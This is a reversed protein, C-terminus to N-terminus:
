EILGGGSPAPMMIAQKKTYQGLGQGNAPDIVTCGFEATYGGTWAGGGESMRPAALTQNEEWTDKAGVNVTGINEYDVVTAGKYIRFYVNNARIASSRGNKIGYNLQLQYKGIRQVFKPNFFVEIDFQEGVTGTTTAVEMAGENIDPITFFPGRDIGGSVVNPTAKFLFPIIRIETGYSYGNPFMMSARWQSEPPSLIGQIATVTEYYVGIRQENGGVIAMAVFGFYLSSLPDLHYFIDAFTINKGYMESGMAPMINQQLSVTLQNGPSITSPVSLGRFPAPADHWYGGFDAIRYPENQTGRPPLYRWDNMYEQNRSALLAEITQYANVELGCCGDDARFWENPYRVYQIGNPTTEWGDRITRNPFDLKLRVPKERSWKNIRGYLDGCLGSIRTEDVKLTAAAKAVFDIGEKPIIDNAM